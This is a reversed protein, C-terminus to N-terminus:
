RLLEELATRAQASRQAQARLDATLAAIWADPDLSERKIAIGGSQRERFGQVRADDVALEYCCSGLEVRVRRVLKEGRGLLGAGRREVRTVTPLAQELKAALVQVSLAVDAEDIRLGAAALEFGQEGDQTERM